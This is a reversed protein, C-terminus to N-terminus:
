RNCYEMGSNGVAKFIAAEIESAHIKDEGMVYRLMRIGRMRAFDGEVEKDTAAAAAAAREEAEEMALVDVIPVAAPTAPPKADAVVAVPPPSLPPPALPASAAAAPAPVPSTVKAASDAANPPENASERFAEKWKKLVDSIQAPRATLVLYCDGLLVDLIKRSVLSVLLLIDKPQPVKKLAKLSKATQWEILM